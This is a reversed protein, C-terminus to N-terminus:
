RSLASFNNFSRFLLLSDYSSGDQLSAIRIWLEREHRISGATMCLFVLSINCSKLLVRDMPQTDDCSERVCKM